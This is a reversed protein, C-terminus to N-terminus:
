CLPGLSAGALDLLVQLIREPPEVKSVFADVGANLATRRSEPLGSLAIVSLSCYARKLTPVLQTATVGPLEWDLLVVDPEENLVGELLTRADGAEGVVDIGPEQELLLRLASRVEPQDDAVFIRMEGVEEQLGATKM